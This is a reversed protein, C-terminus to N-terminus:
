ISEKYEPIVFVCSSLQLRRIFSTLLTIEHKKNAEQYEAKKIIRVMDHESLELLGWKEPIDELPLLGKPTFFYRFNGMGYEKQLRYIKNKDKLYDARSIKCELLVSIGGGVMFGIADPIEGASTVLEGVAITCGGNHGLLWRKARDVLQKHTM